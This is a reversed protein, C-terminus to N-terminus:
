PSLQFARHTFVETTEEESHMCLTHLRSVEVYIALPMILVSVIIDAVALSVIFYNTVTQLSRERYVSLVVLINGFLTFIPFMVLLLAWYRHNMSGDVGDMPSSSTQNLCSTDNWWCDTYNDWFYFESSVSTMNNHAAELQAPLTALVRSTSTERWDAALTENQDGPMQTTGSFDTELDMAGTRLREWAMTFPSQSSPSPTDNVSTPHSGTTWARSDLTSTRWWSDGAGGQTDADRTSNVGAGTASQDASQKVASM